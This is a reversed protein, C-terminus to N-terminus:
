RVHDAVRARRHNRGRQGAGLDSVGAAPLQQACQHDPVLHLRADALHEPRAVIQVAEVGGAGDAGEAGSGGAGAQAPEAFILRGVREREWRCLGRCAPLAAIFPRIAVCSASRPNLALSQPMSHGWPKASVIAGSRWGNTAGISVAAPKGMSLVSKLDWAAQKRVCEVISAMRWNRWCCATPRSASSPIVIVTAPLWRPTQSMSSGFVPSPTFNEM